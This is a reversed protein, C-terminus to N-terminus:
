SLNQAIPEFGSEGGFQPLNDHISHWAAKHDVFYHGKPLLPLESSVIGAPVGVIEPYRVDSTYVHTGCHKCFNRTVNQTAAFSCLSEEGFLEFAQKSFSIWTTFASGNLQRCLGCHCHLVNKPAADVKFRITGCACAGECETKM